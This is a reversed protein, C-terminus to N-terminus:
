FSKGFGIYPYFVARKLGYKDGFNFSPTIGIRFTFGHERQYRYGINGFIFYGFCNSTSIYQEDHEETEKYGMYEASIVCKTCKGSKFDAVVTTKVGEMNMRLTLQNPAKREDIGVKWEGSPTETNDGDPTIEDDKDCSTFALAGCLVFAFMLWFKKM